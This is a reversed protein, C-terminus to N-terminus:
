ARRVAIRLRRGDITLEETRDADDLVAEPALTLDDALLETALWDRRAFPDRMAKLTQRLKMSFSDRLSFAVGEMIARIMHSRGHLATLGLLAARIKPDLHPTREGM